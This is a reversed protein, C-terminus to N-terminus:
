REIEIERERECVFKIIKFYPFRSYQFMKDDVINKYEFECISSFHVFNSRSVTFNQLKKRLFTLFGMQLCVHESKILDNKGVKLLFLDHFGHTYFFLIICGLIKCM